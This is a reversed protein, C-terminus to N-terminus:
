GPTAGSGVVPTRLPGYTARYSRPGILPLVIERLWGPLAASRSLRDTMHQVHEVRPRRRREFEVGVEAWDDYTALLDALVLADEAALAAGQAWVPATAHAADGILVVRGVHWASLRVEQVPSHYLSAPARLASSVAQRVPEPYRDFTDRLWEPDNAVSGHGTASAYGYVQGGSLPILLLTGTPGSWACWCDVGPNATVFRWSAASLLSPRPEDRGFISRRIASHVGDAGVVIDYREPGLGTFSVEVEDGVARVGQVEANWRVRATEAVPRLLDILDGRRVCVSADGGGWYGAEDVAFYLRGRANRYERRRVPTGSAALGEGVGLTRLATVANGPLNLGLGADPPGSARDVLQAFIGRQALARIASLGAIGGGVVLVRRDPTLGGPTSMACM